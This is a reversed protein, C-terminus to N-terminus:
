QDKQLEQISQDPRGPQLVLVEPLEQILQVKQFEPVKLFEPFPQYDRFEPFRQLVLVLHFDRGQLRELVELGLQISQVPLPGPDRQDFQHWQYCRTELVGPVAQNGPHRPDLLGKLSVQFRPVAQFLRVELVEPCM